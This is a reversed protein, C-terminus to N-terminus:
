TGIDVTMNDFKGGGDLWERPFLLGELVLVSSGPAPMVVEVEVVAGDGSRRDDGAEEADAVGLGADDGDVAARAEAARARENSAPHHLV